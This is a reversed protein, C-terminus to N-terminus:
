PSVNHLGLLGSNDTRDPDNADDRSKRWPGLTRRRERRQATRQLAEGREAGGSESVPSERAPEHGRTTTWHDKHKCEQPDGSWAGAAPVRNGCLRRGNPQNGLRQFEKESGDSLTPGSRSRANCASKMAGNRSSRAFITSHPSPIPTGFPAVSTLGGSQM